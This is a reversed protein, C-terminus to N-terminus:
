RMGMVADQKLIGEVRKQENRWRGKQSEKSSTTKTSDRRAPVQVGMQMPPGLQPQSGAQAKAYPQSQIQQQPDRQQFSGNQSPPQPQAQNSRITYLGTSPPQVARQTTSLQIQSQNTNMAQNVSESQNQVVQQNPVVGKQSFRTSSSGNQVTSGPRSSPVNSERWSMNRSVTSGPRSPVWSFHGPGSRGSWSGHRQMSRFEDPTLDPPLDRPDFEDDEMTTELEPLGTVYSFRNMSNRSSLSSYSSMSNLYDASTRFKLKKRIRIMSRESANSSSKALASANSRTRKATIKNALEDNNNEGYTFVPMKADDLTSNRAPHSKNLEDTILTTMIDEVKEMSADFRANKLPLDHTEFTSWVCSLFDDYLDSTHITAAAQIDAAVQNLLSEITPLLQERLISIPTLEQHRGGPHCSTWDLRCRDVTLLAIATFTEIPCIEFTKELDACMVCECKTQAKTNNLKILQAIEFGMAAEMVVTTVMRVFDFYLGDKCLCGSDKLAPDPFKLITMAAWAWSLLESMLRLLRKCGSHFPSHTLLRLRWYLRRTGPYTSNSGKNMLQNLNRTISTTSLVSGQALNFGESIQAEVTQLMNAVTAPLSSESFNWRMAQHLERQMFDLDGPEIASQFCKMLAGIRSVDDCEMDQSMIDYIKRYIRFAPAYSRTAFLYAALSTMALIHEGHSQKHGISRLYCQVADLANDAKRTRAAIMGPDEPEIDNLHESITHYMSTRSSATDAMSSRNGHSATATSLSTSSVWQQTQGGDPVEQYNYEINQYNLNPEYMPGRLPTSTHEASANRSHIARPTTDSWNSPELYQTQPTGFTMPSSKDSINLVGVDPVITSGNSSEPSFAQQPEPESQQNKINKRQAKKAGPTADKRENQRYVHFGWKDFKTCLQGYTPRTDEFDKSIIELIQQRTLKAEHLERLKPKHKNWEDESIRGNYRSAGPKYEQFGRFDM